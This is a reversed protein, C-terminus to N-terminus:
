VFLTQDRIVEKVEGREQRLEIVGEFGTVLLAGAREYLKNTVVRYAPHPVLLLSKVLGLQLMADGAQKGCAVVYSPRMEECVKRLHGLDPPCVGNPESSVQPTTNDYQFALRPCAGTM